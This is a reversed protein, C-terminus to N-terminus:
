SLKVRLLAGAGTNSLEWDQSVSDFYTSGLGPVGDRPGTGDDTVTVEPGEGITVTVRSAFGHRVANAVGENLVERVAELQILSLVAPTVAFSLRILGGWDKELGALVEEISTVQQRGFEAMAENLVKEIELIDAGLNNHEGRSEIRAAVGNLKTQMHGHLFQALQRDKLALQQVRRLEELEADNLYRESETEVKKGLDLFAKAMGIFMTLQFLWILNIIVFGIDQGFTRDSSLLTGLFVQAFGVAFITAVYVWLASATSKVPVNRAFMLGAILLFSRVVQIVLGEEISFVRLTAALSTIAWLPVVWSVSYVPGRIAIKALQDLRFSPLKLSERRWIEQSLPRLDSNVIDRLEEVLHKSSLSDDSQAVRSKADAVFRMLTAPYSDGQASAVKESILAERQQAYRYRLSGFLAAAPAVILGTIASFFIRAILESGTEVAFGQLALGGWTLYGKISGLLAGVLILSGLNMQFDDNKTKLYRDLALVLLFVAGVAGINAFVLGLTRANDDDDTWSLVSALILSLGLLAFIPYDVVGRAALKQGFFGRLRQSM